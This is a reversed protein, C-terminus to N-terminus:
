SPKGDPALEVPIVRNHGPVEQYNYRRGNLWVDTATTLILEGARRCPGTSRSRCASPDEPWPSTGAVSRPALGVPPRGGVVESTVAKPIAPIKWRLWGALLVCAVATLSVGHVTGGLLSCFAAFLGGYLAGMVAGPFRGAGGGILAGALIVAVVGLASSSVSHAFAALLVGALGGVLANGAAAAIRPGLSGQKKM